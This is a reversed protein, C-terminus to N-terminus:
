PFPRDCRRCRSRRKANLTGCDSCHNYMARSFWHTAVASVGLIGAVLLIAQLNESVARRISVDRGISQGM